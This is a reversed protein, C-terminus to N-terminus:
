AAPMLAARASPALSAENRPRLSTSNATSNAQSSSPWSGPTGCSTPPANMTAPTARTCQSSSRWLRSPGSRTPCARVPGPRALRPRRRLLNPPQDPGDAPRRPPSSGSRIAARIGRRRGTDPLLTSAGGPQPRGTRTARTRSSVRSAPVSDISTGARSSSRDRGPVSGTGPTRRWRRADRVSGTLAPPHRWEVPAARDAPDTRRQRGQGAGAARLHPRPVPHGALGGGLRKQALEGLVDFANNLAPVDGSDLTAASLPSWKGHVTAGALGGGLLWMLSGHGHDTGGSANM